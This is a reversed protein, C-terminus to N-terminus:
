LLCSSPKGPSSICTWTTSRVSRSPKRILPLASRAATRARLVNWAPSTGSRLPPKALRHQPSHRPSHQHIPSRSPTRTPRARGPTAETSRCRGLRKASDNVASVEGLGDLNRGLAQLSAGHGVHGVVFALRDPHRARIAAVPAVPIVHERAVRGLEKQARLELVVEDLHNLVVVRGCRANKDCSPLQASSVKLQVAGPFRVVPLSDGAQRHLVVRDPGHCCLGAVLWCALQDLVTRRESGGAHAFLAM